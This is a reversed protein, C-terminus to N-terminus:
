GLKKITSITMLLREALHANRLLIKKHIKLSTSKTEYSLSVKIEVFLQQFEKGM